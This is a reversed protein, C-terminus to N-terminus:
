VCARCTRAKTRAAQPIWPVSPRRLMSSSLFIWCKIDHDEELSLKTILGEDSNELTRAHTERAVTVDSMHSLSVLSAYWLVYKLCVLMEDKTRCSFMYPNWLPSVHNETARSWHLLKCFVRVTLSTKEVAVGSVGSQSNLCPSPFKM